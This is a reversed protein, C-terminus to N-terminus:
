DPRAVRSRQAYADDIPRQVAGPVVVGEDDFGFPFREGRPLCFLHYQNASDVLRYLEVAEADAGALETKIMWLHRWDHVPKRDQRRISLWRM